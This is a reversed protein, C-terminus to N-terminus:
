PVNVSIEIRRNRARNESSDNPVVPQTDAFARIEIRSPDAFNIESLYHVVSAARAASLVWNSPYVRTNIPINDTHGSVVVQGDTEDLLSRLKDLVPEFTGQLKASGSPFADSERVRIMVGDEYLLVELVEADIEQALNERILDILQEVEESVPPSMSIVDLSTPESRQQIIKIMSPDPKGPSFEQKIISTGKPIDAAKIQRQVGFAHKMSGAVQKYKQVDMESFSLLLVFFCMLLSMLDAFTALWAPAGAECEECEEEESM